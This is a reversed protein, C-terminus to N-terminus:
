LDDPIWPMRPDWIKGDEGLYAFGPMIIEKEEGTPLRIKKVEEFEVLKCKGERLNRMTDESGTIDGDRMVFVHVDKGQVNDVPMAWPANRIFRVIHGVAMGHGYLAERARLGASVIIGRPTESRKYDRAAQPMIISTDGYTEDKRSDKEGLQYVYIRDFACQFRFVGEPIVHEIRRKELLPSVFDYTGPKSQRSQVEKVWADIQDGDDVIRAEATAPSLRM